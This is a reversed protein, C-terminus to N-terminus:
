IDYVKFLLHCNKVSINWIMVDCVNGEKNKNILKAKTQTISM